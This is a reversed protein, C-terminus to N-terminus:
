ESQQDSVSGAQEGRAPVLVRRTRILEILTNLNEGTKDELYQAIKEEVDENKVDLTMNPDTPAEKTLDQDNNMADKLKKKDIM